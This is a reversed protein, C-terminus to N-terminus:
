PKSGTRLNMACQRAVCSKPALKVCQELAPTANAHQGIKLYALGLYYHAELIPAVKEERCCELSKKFGEIAEQYNNLAWQVRGLWYFGPCFRRQSFVAHKLNKLAGLHKGQEFQARGINNRALHPTPYTIDELARRAYSEAKAYEKFHLYLTSLNLSTASDREKRLVMVRLFHKLSLRMWKDTERRFESAEGGQVCQLIETEEITKQGKYLYV